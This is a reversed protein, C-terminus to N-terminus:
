LSGQALKTLIAASSGQGGNLRAPSTPETFCWDSGWACYWRHLSSTWIQLPFVYQWVSRRFHLRPCFPVPSRPSNRGLHVGGGGRLLRGGNWFVLGVRHSERAQREAVGGMKM